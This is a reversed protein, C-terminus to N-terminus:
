VSSKKRKRSVLEPLRNEDIIEEDVLLDSMFPYRHYINYYQLVFPDRLQMYKSVRALAVEETPRRIGKSYM